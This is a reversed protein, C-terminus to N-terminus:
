APASALYGLGMRELLSKFRPDDRVPDFEVAATILILSGDREDVARNLGDFLRDRDSLGLHILAMWMASVYSQEARAELERLYQIRGTVTEPVAMRMASCASITSPEDAWSSRRISSPSHGITSGGRRASMVWRTTRLRSAPELALVREFQEVARDLDHHFYHVYGIQTKLQLDLPDLREAEELEILAQDHRRRSCRWGGRM